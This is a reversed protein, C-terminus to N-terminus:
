AEEGIERKEKNGRESRELEKSATTVSLNARVRVPPTAAHRKAREKGAATEPADEEGWRRSNLSSRRRSRRWVPKRRKHAVRSTGGSTTTRDDGETMGDDCRPKSTNPEDKM